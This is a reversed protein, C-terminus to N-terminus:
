LRDIVFLLCELVEFNLLIVKDAKVSLELVKVVKFDDLTLISLAFVAAFLRMALSPLMDKITDLCFILLFNPVYGLM